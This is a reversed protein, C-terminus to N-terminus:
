FQHSKVPKRSGTRESAAFATYDFHCVNFILLYGREYLGLILRLFSFIMNKYLARSPFGWDLDM